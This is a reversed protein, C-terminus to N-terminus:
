SRNRDDDTTTADSPRDDDPKAAEVPKKWLNWPKAADIWERVVGQSGQQEEHTIGLRVRLRARMEAMSSLDLVWFMGGTFMMGWSVVNVTAVSIAELAELGGNIQQEPHQMNNRYFTPKQWHLRRNVARRTIVASFLAFASGALFLSFQRRSRQSDTEAPVVTAASSSSSSSSSSAAITPSPDAPPKVM